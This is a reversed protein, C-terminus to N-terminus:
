QVESSAPPSFIAAVELQFEEASAATNQLEGFVELTDIQAESPHDDAPPLGPRNVRYIIGGDEKLAEVENPFRVDSVVVRKFFRAVRRLIDVWITDCMMERGWETGLKQMAYRPTRGGLYPTPVEKLDGELMRYITEDDVGQYELLAGIMAKIPGAFALRKFGFAELVGAATDKGSRKRGTFGVITTM